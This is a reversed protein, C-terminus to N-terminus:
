SRPVRVGALQHGTAVLRGRSDWVDCTEDVLADQVLRARTRVALPGPAPLARVWASLSMTPVWGTLGLDFTPPPFADVAMVLALPDFARGDDFSLYGRLEGEGGPSGTAWGLCAPDLHEALVGMLPVHFGPADVPLRVCQEITPVQPRAVGDHRPEADEHLRGCTIMAEVRPEGDGSMLRSRLVSSSRGRRLETVELRAAGFPAASLFTGTAALVHPHHEGGERLEALAAQACLALLYGGNPKGAISWEPDVEA